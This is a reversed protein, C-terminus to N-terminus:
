VLRTPYTLLYAIRLWWPIQRGPAPELRATVRGGRAGPGGTAQGNRSLTNGYGEGM